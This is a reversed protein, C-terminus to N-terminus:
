DFNKIRKDDINYFKYSKSYKSYFCLEFQERFNELLAVHIHVSIRSIGTTGLCIFYPFKEGLLSVVRLNEYIFGQFRKKQFVKTDGVTKM